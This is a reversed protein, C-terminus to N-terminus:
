LTKCSIWVPSLFALSSYINTKSSCNRLQSTVSVAAPTPTCCHPMMEATDTGAIVVEFAFIQRKLACGM